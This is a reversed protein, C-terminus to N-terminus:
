SRRELVDDPLRVPFLQGPTFAVDADAVEPEPIPPEEDPDIAGFARRNIPDSARDRRGEAETALMDCEANDDIPHHAEHDVTLLEAVPSDRRQARREAQIPQPEREHGLVLLEPGFRILGAVSSPHDEIALWEWGRRVDPGVRAPELEAGIAPSIGVGLDGRAADPEDDVTPVLGGEVVHSLRPEAGVTPAHRVHRFELRAHGHHFRTVLPRYVLPDAAVDEAPNAVGRM